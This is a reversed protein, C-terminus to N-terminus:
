SRLTTDAEARLLVALNDHSKVTDPHKPGLAKKRIALAREFLPQAGAVDGQAELLCALNNLYTATDPHGPGLVKESIKLAREYFPRAGALDGQAQLLGALNTLIAATNSNEPGLAKEYSALARESLLRAGSLDSQAQLLNALNNLSWATNPHEPGLVKEKIALAREYLPQAGTLDGQAQLLGALNSLSQATALHEPGLTKEHIALAREFLSRARVLDGQAEVLCALNNLSQATALHEPGLMKERIALAREFHPRARRLNGQAQLLRALNNLSTATDPHGLGRIIASLLANFAPIARLLWEPAGLNRLTNLTGEVSRENAAADTWNERTLALNREARERVQEGNPLKAAFALERRVCVAEVRARLREEYDIGSRILRAHTAEHVITSAILELSSTEALIFRTDLQCAHISHNFYGIALGPLPLIWVRELDRILRDFRRPDHEKILRLADEVRHLVHEHAGTLFTGLWLGDVRKGASLLLALGDLLGPGPSRRKKRDHGGRFEM